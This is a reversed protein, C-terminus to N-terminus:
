PWVQPSGKAKEFVSSIQEQTMDALQTGALAPDVIDLVDQQQISYECLYADVRNRLM